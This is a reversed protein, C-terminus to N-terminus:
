KTHHVHAENSFYLFVVFPKKEEFGECFLPFFFVEVMYVNGWVKKQFVLFVFTLWLLSLILLTSLFVGAPSLNNKKGCTVETEETKLFFLPSM